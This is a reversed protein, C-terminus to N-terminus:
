DIYEISKWDFEFDDQLKEYIIWQKTYQITVPFKLENIGNHFLHYPKRTTIRELSEGIRRRMFVKRLNRNYENFTLAIIKINKDQAWKKHSPLIYERLISNNRYDKSVWARVGALAVDDSFGSVYIGGCAIIKGGDFLVHYDGKKIFRDTNNLIFPLTESKEKWSDHWMNSGAAMNEKQIQKLFEYFYEQEEFTLSYYSKLNM